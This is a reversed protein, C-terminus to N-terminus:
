TLFLIIVPGAILGVGFIEIWAFLFLTLIKRSGGEM